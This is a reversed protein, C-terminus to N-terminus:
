ELADSEVKNESDLTIYMDYATVLVQKIVEREENSLKIGLSNSTLYIREMARNIKDNLPMTSSLDQLYNIANIVLDSYYLTKHSDDLKRSLTMTVFRIVLKTTNLSVKIDESDYGRERLLKYIYASGGTFVIVGLILWLLQYDMIDSGIM